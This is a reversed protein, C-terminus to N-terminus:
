SCHLICAHLDGFAVELAAKRPANLHYSNAELQKRYGGGQELWPQECLNMKISKRRNVTLLKKSQNKVEFYCIAAM